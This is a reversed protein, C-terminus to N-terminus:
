LKIYEILVNIERVYVCLERVEFAETKVEAVAVKGARWSARATVSWSPIMRSMAAM